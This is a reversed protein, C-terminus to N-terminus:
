SARGRPLVWGAMTCETAPRWIYGQRRYFEDWQAGIVGPPVPIFAIRM